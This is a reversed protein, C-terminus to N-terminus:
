LSSGSGRVLSFDSGSGAEGLVVNLEFFDAVSQRLSCSSLGAGSSRVLSFESGREAKGLVMKLVLWEHIVRTRLRSLLTFHRIYSVTPIQGPLSWQYVDQLKQM